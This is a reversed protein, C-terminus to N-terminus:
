IFTFQSLFRTFLVGRYENTAKVIMVVISIELLIFLEYYGLTNQTLAVTPLLFCFFSVTSQGKDLEIHL